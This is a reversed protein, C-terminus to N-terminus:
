RASRATIANAGCSLRASGALANAGRGARAKSPASWASHMNTTPAVGSALFFEDAELGPRALARLAPTLEEDVDLLTPELDRRVERTPSPASAKQFAISSARHSFTKATPCSSCAFNELVRAHGQTGYPHPAVTHNFTAPHFVSCGESAFISCSCNLLHASHPLNLSDTPASLGVSFRLTPPEIGGRAGNQKMLTRRAWLLRQSM